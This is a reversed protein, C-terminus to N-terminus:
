KSDDKGRYKPHKILENWEITRLVLAIRHWFFSLKCDMVIHSQINYKFNNAGVQSSIIKVLEENSTMFESETFNKWFNEISEQGRYILIEEIM